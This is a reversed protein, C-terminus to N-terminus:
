AEGTVAFPREDDAALHAAAVTREQELGASLPLASGETVLTKTAAIAAPNVGALREAVAAVTADLEAAPVARYALGWAVAQAGSLHDGNLMLGLARPRGVIRPLRQSSGGGPVAGMRLHHDGLRADDAVVAVDCCQVLEFGGALAYGRVAAIVPIPLAEITTCLGAFADLLRRIGAAGNADRLAHLEAVDGGVSFHDGAGRLVVARATDQVRLLAAQLRRALSVTVANMASPRNLTLYTVDGDRTELLEPDLM